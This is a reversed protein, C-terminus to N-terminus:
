DEKKDCYNGSCHSQSHVEPPYNSTVMPGLIKSVYEQGGCSCGSTCDAVTEVPAELPEGKEIAEQMQRLQQKKSECCSCTGQVPTKVLMDALWKFM